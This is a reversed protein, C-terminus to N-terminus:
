LGLISRYNGATLPVCYLEVELVIKLLGLNLVSLRNGEFHTRSNSYKEDKGVRRTARHIWSIEM